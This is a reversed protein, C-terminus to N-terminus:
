LLLGDPPGKWVKRLKKKTTVNFRSGHIGNGRLDLQVLRAKNCSSPLLNALIEAMVEDIQNRALNLHTLYPSHLVDHMIHEFRTTWGEDHYLEEFVKGDSLNLHTLATCTDLIDKVVSHPVHNMPVCALVLQTTPHVKQLATLKELVELMKSEPDSGYELVWDPNVTVRSCVGDYLYEVKSFADAGTTSNEDMSGRAGVTLQALLAHLKLMTQTHEGRHADAMVTLCLHKINDQHKNFLLLLQM